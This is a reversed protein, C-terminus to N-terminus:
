VERFRSLYLVSEVEEALVWGVDSNVFAEVTGGTFGPQATLTELLENAETETFFKESTLRAATEPNGVPSFYVVTRYM